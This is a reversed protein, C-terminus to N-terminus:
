VLPIFGFILLKLVRLKWTGLDDAKLDAFEVDDLDVIFSANKTVGMPQIHCVQSLDPNLLIRAIKEALYGVCTTSFIPLEKDNNYYQMTDVSAQEDDSSSESFKIRHEDDSSTGSESFKIRYYFRYSNRVICM